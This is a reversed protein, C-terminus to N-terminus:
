PNNYLKNKQWNLPNNQIYKHIQKLESENRIIHEYYNRQWIKQIGSNRTENIKKTSGYKFYGVMQGITPVRNQCWENDGISNLLRLPPTMGGKGDINRGVGDINRDVGDINRDVGDTNRDVGDNMGGVGDNMGGVGDNMGGVGDNMGGVGTILIGHIHNPMIIFEDTIVNPFHGQIQHWVDQVINGADNLTMKGDAIHGFMM